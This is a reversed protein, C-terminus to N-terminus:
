YKLNNLERSAEPYDGGSLKLAYVFSDKARKYNGKKKYILGFYYQSIPSGPSIKNYIDLNKLALDVKDVNYYSIGLYLYALKELNQKKTIGKELYPISDGYKRQDALILGYYINASPNEQDVKLIEKYLGLAEEKKNDLYYLLALQLKTNIDNNGKSKEKYIEIQRTFVGRKDSVPIKERIGYGVIFLIICFSLIICFAPLLRFRTDLNFSIRYNLVKLLKKRLNM